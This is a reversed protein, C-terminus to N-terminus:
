VLVPSPETVTLADVMRNLKGRARAVHAQPVRIEATALDGGVVAYSLSLVPISSLTASIRGLAGRSERLTVTFTCAADDPSQVPTSHDDAAPQARLLGYALAEQLAEHTAAIIPAGTDDQAHIGLRAGTDAIVTAVVAQIQAPLMGGNTDCLIVVDAGAEHAARVVAKAYDPNAKHGDFFHECDVFVRRGQSTLFAVTDRVMGLNEDLHRAITLKDAVTLNIGERQAGDRLTTDFVHFVDHNM